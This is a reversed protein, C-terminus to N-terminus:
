GITLKTKHEAINMFLNVNHQRNKSKRIRIVGKIDEFYILYTLLPYIPRINQNGYSFPPSSPYPLYMKRQLAGGVAVVLKRNITGTPAAAVHIISINDIYSVSKLTVDRRVHKGHNDRTVNRM